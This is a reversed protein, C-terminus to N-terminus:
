KKKGRAKRRAKRRKSGVKRRRRFSRHKEKHSM